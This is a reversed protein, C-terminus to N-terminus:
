NPHHGDFQHEALKAAHDAIQGGLQFLIDGQHGLASLGLDVLVHDVPERVRQHVHDAVAHVVTKFQRLAAAGCALGCATGDPQRGPLLAALNQDRDLIIARPQVSVRDPLLGDLTTQQRGVHSEVTASSCWSMKAGPNEVAFASEETDPRPTPISATREVTSARRPM